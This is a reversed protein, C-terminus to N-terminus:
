RRPAAWRRRPPRLSRPPHGRFLPPPPPPAAPPPGGGGALAGTGAVALAQGLVERRLRQPTAGLATRIGIVRTQARVASAVVGYLGIAGLLLAVIAFASFLVASLRPRALPGALYANMSQARWLTLRADTERVARRM